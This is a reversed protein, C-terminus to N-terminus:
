HNCSHRHASSVSATDAPVYHSTNQTGAQPGAWSNLCGSSGVHITSSQCCCSVARSQQLRTKQGRQQLSGPKKAAPAACFSSCVRGASATRMEFAPKLANLILAANLKDEEPGRQASGPGSVVCSLARSCPVCRGQGRVLLVSRIAELLAASRGVACLPAM